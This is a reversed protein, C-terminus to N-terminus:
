GGDLVSEEIKSENTEVSTFLARWEVGPDSETGGMCGAALTLTLAAQGFFGSPGGFSGSICPELVFQTFSLSHACELDPVAYGAGNNRM